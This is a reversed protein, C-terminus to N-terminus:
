ASDASFADRETNPMGSGALRITMTGDNESVM